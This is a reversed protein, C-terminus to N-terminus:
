SEEMKTPDMELAEWRMACAALMMVAGGVFVLAFEKSITNIVSNIVLERQPGSFADQAASAAGALAARLTQEPLNYGALSSKLNDYGINQFIAGAMTLVISFTGIQAVNIFGIGAPIDRGRLKAAAVSYGIQFTAGGGLACLVEFGYIAGTHTSPSIEYLLVGGILILIGSGLYWPAYRKTVPMLAGNFMMAFVTPIIFPLLRIAAKLASDGRSFQFLLPIYYICIGQCATCAGTAVYLLVMTRSKLLQVPYLRNEKTTFIAFAQQVIFAILSAGFLVWMSISGGSSWAWDAGSFTLAVIFFVWVCANLVAGVWDVMVLKKLFTLQKAPNNNPFLFIYVPASVGALPLNIYFAWRWTASENVSFAGGIVPGLIAGIGWCLGMSANYLPREKISTFAEVYTLAALYIGAGGMGALVRGVILADINPAGGCLASGAEFLTLSAIFVWKTDFLGCCFGLLLIVGVSGMPFGVGVWALKEINLFDEYVSAQVDAAITTDLGYLFAGLFLGATCLAWSYKSPRNTESRTLKEGAGSHDSSGADKELDRETTASADLGLEKSTRHQEVGAATQLNGGGLASSPRPEIDLEKSTAPVATTM